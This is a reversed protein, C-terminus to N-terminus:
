SGGEVRSIVGRIKGRPTRELEDVTQVDVQTDSGVRERVRQGLIEITEPTLEGDALVRIMVAGPREQVFQAARIGPLGKPVISMRSVRRGDTGVVVDDLRGELASLVPMPRGCGCPEAALAGLDGTRYRVFPQAERILSTSVIEGVEGPECPTGDERVIEVVGSDPMVHLSGAECELAVLVDEVMGYEEHLQAGFAAHV